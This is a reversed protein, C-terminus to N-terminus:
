PTILAQLAKILDGNAAVLAREAQLRPIELESVIFDVDEKKCNHIEKPTKAPPKDFLSSRFAEEMRQKSYSYGDGFNIVVEPETRGNRNNTTM